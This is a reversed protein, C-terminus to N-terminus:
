SLCHLHKAADACRSLAEHSAVECLSCDVEVAPKPEPLGALILESTQLCRLFPSSVIRDLKLAAMAKATEAAQM